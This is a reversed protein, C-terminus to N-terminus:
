ADVWLFARERGGERREGERDRRACTPEYCQVPADFPAATLDKTKCIFCKLKQRQAPIHRIEVPRM